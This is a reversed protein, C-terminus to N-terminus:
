KQTAPVGFQMYDVAGGVGRFVRCYRGCEGNWRECRCRQWTSGGKLRTHM